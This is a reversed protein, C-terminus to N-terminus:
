NNKDESTKNKTLYLWIFGGFIALIYSKARLALGVALAQDPTAGLSQLFYSYAGEQIGLGSPTIPIAGILLILPLVVFLDHYPIGCWGICAGAVMVNLVTCLHFLLSLIFAKVLLIPQTHAYRLADQIKRFHPMYKALPPCLKQMLDLFKPHLLLITVIALSAAMGIVVLRIQWTVQQVNWMFILALIMMAVFGTYRELVTAAFAQHKGVDKGAYWSRVVDGGVYSPVLLNIFYGLVYFAFLKFASIRKGATEMFLQWKLSSIYILVVSIFLFFLLIGLKINKFAAILKQIDVSLFLITLAALAIGWKVLRSNLLALLKM